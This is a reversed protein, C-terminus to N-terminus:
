LDYFAMKPEDIVGVKEDYYGDCLIQVGENNEYIANELKNKRSESIGVMYNQLKRLIEKKNEIDAQSLDNLLRKAEDEYPVAISM